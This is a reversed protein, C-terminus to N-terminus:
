ISVSWFSKKRNMCARMFLSDMINSKLGACQGMCDRGEEVAVCVSNASVREYTSKNAGREANAPALFSLSGKQALCKQSPRDVQPLFGM